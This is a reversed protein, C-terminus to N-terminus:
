LFKLNFSGMVKTDVSEVHFTSLMPYYFGNSYFRTLKVKFPIFEKSDWIKQMSLDLLLDCIDCLSQQKTMMNGGGAFGLRNVYELCEDFDNIVKM